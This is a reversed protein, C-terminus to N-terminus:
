CGVCCALNELRQALADHWWRPGHTSALIALRQRTQRGESLLWLTGPEFHSLIKSLMLVIIFNTERKKEQENTM